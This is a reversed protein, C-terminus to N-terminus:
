RHEVGDAGRGRQGRQRRRQRRQRKWERQREHSRDPGQAIQVPDVTLDAGASAVAIKPPRGAGVATLITPLLVLVLAALALLATTIKFTRGDVRIRYERRAVHLANPFIGGM